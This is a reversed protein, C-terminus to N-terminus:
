LQNKLEVTQSYDDSMKAKLDTNEASLADMQSVQDTLKANEDMSLKLSVQTTEFSVTLEDKEKTLGEM